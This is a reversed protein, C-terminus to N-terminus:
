WITSPKRVTLTNYFERNLIEKPIREDETKIIHDAQGLKRSKIDDLNKLEKYRSFDKIRKALNKFKV